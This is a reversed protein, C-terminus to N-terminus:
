QTHFRYCIPKHSSMIGTGTTICRLPIHVQQRPLIRYLFDLQPYTFQSFDFLEKLLCNPKVPRYVSNVYEMYTAEIDFGACSLLVCRIAWCNRGWVAACVANRQM